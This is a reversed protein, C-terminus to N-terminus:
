VIGSVTVTFELSRTYERETDLIEKVVHVRFRKQKDTMNNSETAPSSRQELFGLKAAFSRKYKAHYYFPAGAAATTTLYWSCM